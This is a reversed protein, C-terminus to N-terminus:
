LWSSAFISPFSAIPLWRLFESLEQIQALKWIQLGNVFSTAPDWLLFPEAAHHLTYITTIEGTMGWLSGPCKSSDLMWLPFLRIFAWANWPDKSRPESYVKSARSGFQWWAGNPWPSVSAALLTRALPQNVSFESSRCVWKNGQGRLTYNCYIYKDTSTSPGWATLYSSDYHPCGVVLRQFLEGDWSLYYFISSHGMHQFLIM